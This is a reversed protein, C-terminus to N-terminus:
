MRIMIFKKNYKSNKIRAIHINKLRKYEQHFDGLQWADRFNRPGEIQLRV